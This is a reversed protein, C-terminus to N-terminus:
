IQLRLLTYAYKVARSAVLVRLSRRNMVPGDTIVENLLFKSYKSGPIIGVEDCKV